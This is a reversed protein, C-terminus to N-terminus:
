CYNKWLNSFINVLIFVNILNVLERLIEWVVIFYERLFSNFNLSIRMRVVIAKILRCGLCIKCGSMIFM